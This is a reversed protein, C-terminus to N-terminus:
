PSGWFSYKPGLCESVGAVSQYSCNWWRSTMMALEVDWLDFTVDLWGREEGVLCWRVDSRDCADGWRVVTVDRWGFTVGLDVFTVDRSDFTM